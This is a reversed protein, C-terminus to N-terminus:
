PPGALPLGFRAALHRMLAASGTEIMRYVQLFGEDGGYYPDPVDADGLEPAFSAFLAIRDARNRPARAALASVHGRDMGLVLDFRDFDAATVQRARQTSLDVGFRAALATARGDPAGGVHWSGIGASDIDLCDAIGAANAMHRFVGEATPSRCINGSCVFLM